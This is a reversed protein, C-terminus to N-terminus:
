PTQPPQAAARKAEATALFAGFEFETAREVFAALLDLRGAFLDNTFSKMDVLAGGIAFTGDPLRSVKCQPAFLALLRAVKSYHGGESSLADVGVCADDVSLRRLEFRIGEVDFTTSKEVGM